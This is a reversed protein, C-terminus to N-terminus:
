PQDRHEGTRRLQHPRPRARGPAERATGLQVPCGALPEDTLASLHAHRGPLRGGAGPHSGRRTSVILGDGNYDTAVEGNVWLRFSLMRMQASGGLVVDNLALYSPGARGDREVHAQLMLRKVPRVKGGLIDDLGERLESESLEALFGLKGINVGVVPLECGGLKRAVRLLSGDGGFVIAVDAEAYRGVPEDSNLGFVSVEARGGLWTEFDEVARKVRPRTMNAFVIIRSM